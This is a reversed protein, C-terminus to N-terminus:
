KKVVEVKMQLGCQPCLNLKEEEIKFSCLCRKCQFWKANKKAKEMAVLEGIM